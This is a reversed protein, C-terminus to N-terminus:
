SPLLSLTVTEAPRPPMDLATMGRDRAPSDGLRQAQTFTSRRNPSSPRAAAPHTSPRVGLPSNHVGCASGHATERAFNRDELVASPEATPSLM